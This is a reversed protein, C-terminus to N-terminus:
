DIISRAVAHEDMDPSILLIEGGLSQKAIDRRWTSSSGIFSANSYEVIM